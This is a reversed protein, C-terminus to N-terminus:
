CKKERKRKLFQYKVSKFSEYDAYKNRGFTEHHQKEVFDYAQEHTDYYQLVTHFRDIFGEVTLLELFYPEIKTM